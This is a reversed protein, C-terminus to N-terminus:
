VPIQIPATGMGAVMELIDTFASVPTYYRDEYVLVTWGLSEFLETKIRDRTQVQILSHNTMKMDKYHWPGNWLIAIKHDPLVIDADWGSDIMHNALCNFTTACLEFLKIEDFSRNPIKSVNQRAVISRREFLCYESCTKRGGSNKGCIVCQNSSSSGDKYNPNNEGYLRYYNHKHKNKRKTENTQQITEASVIRGKNNFTAACSSGCFTNNRQAYPISANCNRCNKPNDEYAAKAKAQKSLGPFIFNQSHIKRLADCHTPFGPYHSNLESLSSFGFQKINQSTIKRCVYGNVPSILKDTYVYGSYINM